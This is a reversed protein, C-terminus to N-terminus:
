TCSGLTRMLRAQPARKLFLRCLRGPQMSSGQPATLYANQGAKNEMCRDGYRVACM